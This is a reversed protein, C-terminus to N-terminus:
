DAQEWWRRIAPIEDIAEPESPAEDQEVVTQQNSEVTVTHNGQLDSVEVEGELVTVITTSDRTVEMLFDTGRVGLVAIPARVIVPETVHKLKMYMEGYALELDTAAPEPGSTLMEIEAQADLFLEFQEMPDMGDPDEVEHEMKKRTHEDTEIVKGPELVDEEWHVRYLEGEVSYSLDISEGEAERIIDQYLVPVDDIDLDDIDVSVEHFEEPLHVPMRDDEIIFDLPISSVHFPFGVIHPGWAGGDFGLISSGHDGKPDTCGLLPHCTWHTIVPRVDPYSLGWGSDLDRWVKSWHLRGEIEGSIRPTKVNYHRTFQSLDPDIFVYGPKQYYATAWGDFTKREEFWANTSVAINAIDMTFGSTFEAVGEVTMEGQGSIWGQWYSKKRPLTIIGADYDQEGPINLEKGPYDESEEIVILFGEEDSLTPKGSIQPKEFSRGAKTAPGSSSVTIATHKHGSGTSIFTMAETDSFGAGQVRLLYQGQALGEGLSLVIENMGRGIETNTRTIERGLIDFLVIDARTNEPAEFPITTQPNFPNPYSSGLRFASPIDSADGPEASVAEREYTLVFVGESDTTTTALLEEIDDYLAVSQNVVPAAEKDDLLRGSVEYDTVETPQGFSCFVLLLVPFPIFYGTHKM